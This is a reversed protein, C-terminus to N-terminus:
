VYDVLVSGHRNRQRHIRVAGYYTQRLGIELTGDELWAVDAYLEGYYVNGRGLAFGFYSPPKRWAPRVTVNYLKGEDLPFEMSYVYAIHKGDPSPLVQEFEVAPESGAVLFFTLAVPAAARLLFYVGVALALLLLAAIFVKYRAHM